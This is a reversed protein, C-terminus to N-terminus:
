KAKRDIVASILQQAEPSDWEAPGVLRGVERGEADILLTTPMGEVGLPKMARSTKDVYAKLNKIGLKDLFKKTVDLGGRDLSLAVVEFNKGGLKSQLRDLSPMEEKCPGCWTAWVNLLVAKGKFDQLTKLAEGETVFSINPAPQPPSAYVFSAMAGSNLSGSSSTSWLGNGAGGLSLYVAGFGVLAALAMVWLYFAPSPRPLANDDKESMLRLVM